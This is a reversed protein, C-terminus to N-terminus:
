VGIQSARRKKKQRPPLLGEYLPNDYNIIFLGSDEDRLPMTFKDKVYKKPGDILKLIKPIMTELKADLSQESRRKMDWKTSDEGYPIPSLKDVFRSFAELFESLVMNYHKDSDIENVQLRMSLNFIVPIEKVPFDTDMLVSCLNTFNELQMWFSDKRSMIQQPAYTYFLADFIPIHSKLLNDVEENYYREIRWKHNDFNKIYDIYHKEFAYEVSESVSPLQKTRFYKDKAIKVLLLLFQHRIINDPINKNQKKEQKDVINSKVETVKVLVDNILYKSDLLDPCSQAFETIQNQGIQWVKWGLYASLNKYAEIIQKYHEKLTFRLNEEDQSDILDKDKAFKCREYDFEFANSYTIDKEGEYDYGYWAWLSIPFSWPTRPRKKLNLKKEPRPICHKIMKIYNGSEMAIVEPNIEVETKAVKTIIFQKPEEDEDDEDDIFEKPKKEQTYIIAEKIEHTIQGYNDVPIGNIAIFFYLPGPPCMRHCLFNNHILKMNFSKYNEFNLHLSAMSDSINEEQKNNPKYNFKVERWGECIWCNNKARLKKINLINSKILPNEESIRYYLQSNAFYNPEYKNKEIPYIFGLEDIWMNNGDVHIGLITHNDKVHESIEKADTYSINNYSIDLHMLETNKNHFLECLQTTFYSVKNTSKVPNLIGQKRFQMSIKLENLYANDFHNNPDKTVNTLEELNPLEDTLNNGILNWSLDLMKLKNHKKIESMMMGAGQNRFQNQYLNLVTLLDCKSILQTLDLSVDDDLDNQALNLYRLKTYLNLTIANAIKKINNNCLHNSELDIHELICEFDVIIKCLLETAAIGIKNFSLNLHKLKKIMARNNLIGKLLPITGIDTLRNKSLNIEAIHDSVEWSETLCRAYSDGLGKNKLNLISSDGKKKVVGIPNPVIRYKKAGKILNFSPTKINGGKRFIEIERHMKDYFVKFANRDAYKTKKFNSNYIKYNKKAEKLEQLSEEVEETQYLELYKRIETETLEVPEEMKRIEEIADESSLSKNKIQLLKRNKDENLRRKFVYDFRKLSNYKENRVTPLSMKILNEKYIEINPNRIRVSKVSNDTELTSIHYNVTNMKNRNSEKKENNRDNKKKIEEETSKKKNEEEKKEEPQTEKQEEETQQNITNDINNNEIEENKQEQENTEPNEKPSEEQPSMTKSNDLPEEDIKKSNDDEKIVEKEINENNESM